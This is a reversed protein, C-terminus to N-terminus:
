KLRLISSTNGRLIDRGNVLYIRDYSSNKFPTSDGEAICFEQLPIYVSLWYERIDNNKPDKRYEMLKKEKKVITEMLATLDKENVGGGLMESLSFHEFTRDPFFSLYSLKELKFEDFDLEDLRNIGNNLMFRYGNIIEEAIEKYNKKGKDHTVATYLILRPPLDSKDLERKILQEIEKWANNDKTKGNPFWRTHELGVRKGEYVFTFDPRECKHYTEVGLHKFLFGAEQKEEELKIDDKSM